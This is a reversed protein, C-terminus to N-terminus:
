VPPFRVSVLVSVPGHAHTAEAVFAHVAARDRVDVTRIECADSRQSSAALCLARTEDLEDGLLDCAWVRAGRAAFAVSIARGFGHAAGTVVVTRGSFEIHM